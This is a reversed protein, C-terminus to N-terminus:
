ARKEMNWFVPFSGRVIGSVETRFAMPHYWGGVPIYPLEELAVRQIDVAIRKQQNLDTAEFWASRLAEIRPSTPWGIWGNAGTGIIPLHVAPNATSEGVLYNCFISWGAEAPTGKNTRRQVLTGWDMAQYDVKIGLKQFLDRTVESMAQLDPYDTPAMLVVTEGNYGSSQVLRRAKDLDRPSTLAEMGVDTALATGPTFVGVDTHYLSTEDGLVAEMYDKQSIAPLLAQRLKENNFPPQLENFRLFGVQGLFDFVEVRVGPSKRLQPLLDILPKHWLDIEGTRLGGAATAADTIIRWDVRDLRPVKAGATFSTKDQRPVYGDFRAYAAHAGAVWEDPLFRYPGSGTFDTIQTFADVSAVREPMVFCVNVASKGLAFLMQPFPKRLRIVFRKDDLVAVENLVGLIRLGIPDRKMWRQVSAVCDRAMVREGDHFRLGDRLTFRWELQDASLDHGECMQPQAQLQEDVGYLTDWVMYGHIRAVNATTWIPDPSTLNGEPIFNLTKAKGAVAPRALMAGAAAAATRVFDRRHM